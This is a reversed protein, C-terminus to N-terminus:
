DRKGILMSVFADQDVIVLERADEVAQEEQKPEEKELEDESSVTAEAAAQNEVEDTPEAVENTKNDSM